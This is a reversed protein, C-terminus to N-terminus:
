FNEKTREEIISSNVKTDENETAKKYKIIKRVYFHEKNKKINSLIM